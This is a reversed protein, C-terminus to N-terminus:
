KVPKLIATWGGGPAMHFDVTDGAKVGTTSIKYDTAERHANVGDALTTMTWEGEPLFDLTVSMDRPTWDTMAAVYWDEGARRAIVLYEGIKARIGITEDWVSPISALFQAYDPVTKFNSPSDAMMQLPSEYVVFLAGQHGRTGLSMPHNFNIMFDEQTATRVAGPTYDMPGAMMRTFPLILNHRPNIDRSDKSHEMGLVGEFTMVNPYKRQIGCPKYAGHFDVLLHRDAAAKAVRDYFNVMYQDSRNMFDIKIGKVGWDRYVDLIGEVDLDLPNWLGWLVLGVGRENGYRVLEEVNVEPKYHKLDWTSQSWGEDLLIYPIGNEAAFDIIYKYTDTNVGAEFDVGYVNLMSWWDWSIIGPKIWSADGIVSPSSLQWALTNELLGRDDSEIMVVRWPLTRPGKVEAIYPYLELIDETRDHGPRLRVDKIVHPFVGTLVSLSDTNVFLNTYDDVDAETVVVRTAKGPTTMYIPLYGNLTPDIESLALHEFSCEQPTVFDKFHDMPWYAMTSDPMAFEVVENSIIQSGKRDLFIRYAAGNDYVRVNVGWDGAMKLTLENYHDRIERFKTPVDATLTEDVSRKKVSKIRADSKKRDQIDISIRSPKLIVEGDKEVSWTLSSGSDDVTAKIKGDPSVVTYSGAHLAVSSLLIMGSLLSFNRM